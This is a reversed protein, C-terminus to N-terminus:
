NKAVAVPNETAPVLTPITPIADAAVGMVRAWNVTAEVQERTVHPTESTLDAIQKKVQALAVKVPDYPAQEKAIYATWSNNIAGEVKRKIADYEWIMGDRNFERKKGKVHEVKDTEANYRLTANNTTAYNIAATRAHRTKLKGIADFVPNFMDMNGHAEYRLSLSVLINHISKDWTEGNREAKTCWAKVQADSINANFKWTTKAM